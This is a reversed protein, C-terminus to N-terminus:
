AEAGEIEELTQQALLMYDIVAGLTQHIDHRSEQFFYKHEETTDELYLMLCVRAITLGTDLYACVDSIEPNAVLPLATM